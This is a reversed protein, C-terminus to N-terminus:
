LNNRTSQEQWSKRKREISKILAAWKTVTLKDDNIDRGLANEVNVIMDEYSINDKKVDNKLNEIKINTRLTKIKNLVKKMDRHGSVNMGWYRLAEIGKKKDFMLLYYGTTLGALKAKKATSVNIKDIAESYGRNNTLEEYEGM